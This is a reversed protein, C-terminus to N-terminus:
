RSRAGRRPRRRSARRARGRAERRRGRADPLRGRDLRRRAARRPAPRARDHRRSRHPHQGAEAEAPVEGTRHRLARHAGRDRRREVAPAAAPDHRRRAQRPRPLETGSRRVGGGAVRGRRRAHCSREVRSRAHGGVPGGRDSPAAAARLCQHRTPHEVNRARHVVPRGVPRVAAHRRHGDPLRVRQLPLHATDGGPVRRAGADVGVRFRQGGGRRAIDAYFRPSVGFLPLGFKM